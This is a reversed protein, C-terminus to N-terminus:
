IGGLNVLFNRFVNLFIWSVLPVVFDDRGLFYRGFSVIKITSAACATVVAGTFFSSASSVDTVKVVFEFFIFIFLFSVLFDNNFFFSFLFLGFLWFLESEVLVVALFSNFHAFTDGTLWDLLSLDFSIPDLLFFQCDEFSLFVFSGFFFSSFHLAATSVELVLDGSIVIVGLDQAESGLRLSLFSFFLWPFVTIAVVILLSGLSSFVVSFSWSDLVLDVELFIVEWGESKDQCM